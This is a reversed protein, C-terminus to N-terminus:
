TLNWAPQQGCAEPVAVVCVEHTNWGELLSQNLFARVCVCVIPGRTMVIFMRAIVFKEVTRCQIRKSGLTGNARERGEMVGRGREDMRDLSHSYEM